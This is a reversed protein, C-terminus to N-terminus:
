ENYVYVNISKIWSARMRAYMCARACTRRLFWRLIRSFGVRLCLCRAIWTSCPQALPFTSAGHPRLVLFNRKRSSDAFSPADLFFDNSTGRMISRAEPALTFVYPYSKRGAFFNALNEYLYKSEPIEHTANQRRSLRWASRCFIRQWYFLLQMNRYICVDKAYPM